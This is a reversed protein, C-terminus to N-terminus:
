DINKSQSRPYIKYIYELADNHIKNDEARQTTIPLIEWATGSGKMYMPVFSVDSLSLKENKKNTCLEVNLLITSKKNLERQGSVFNGLSYIVLAEKGSTTTVKEWPQLVHPHNGIVIDAGANVFKLALEKQKAEPQTQYEVGWHPTVVVADVDKSSSLKNITNLIHGQDSLCNLVQRAKDIIGNTFTTCAIFAIRKGRSEVIAHIPRDEFTEDSKKTGSFLLGKKEFMDITDDAGSKGRDLSHNNATSVVDFGSDMLSDILLPNYNFAPYSTYTVNDYIDHQYPGRSGKRQYPSSPGEFNAYAIDADEIMPIVERWLSKYKDTARAAQQQLGGHLLVDGVAAITLRDNDACNNKFKIPMALDVAFVNVTYGVMILTTISKKSLTTGKLFKM